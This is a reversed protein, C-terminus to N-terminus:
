NFQEVNAPPMHEGSQAWQRRRLGMVEVPRELVQSDNFEEAGLVVPITKLLIKFDLWLSWNDIYAMDLEMWQEFPLASRGSVQWLCTIGPRVSFRRRHWDQEFGEYDRQPLPRPGVLSMHGKLVNILQPLEDISTKRLIHGIRTVRPDKKIKFVPGSVENLHQLEELKKEADVVMTRFKYLKFRRKNYGVREQVFFVPGPSTIKILAAVSLLLPSLLLLLTASVARDFGSKLLQPWAEIPTSYLTLVPKDDFVEITGRAMSRDFIQSVFRITVGQEECARVIHASQQYSTSFPLAVVVEDVVNDSLYENLNDFNAVVTHGSKEFAELGDWPEDVFGVVRYGLEPRSELKKAFRAARPNTGAILVYRLNRGRLRMRELFSRIALRGGVAGLLVSLYFVVVFLLRDFSVSTPLFADKILVGANFAVLSGLSAAKFAESAEQWRSKLRRARQYLGFSRLILHWVIVLWIASNVQLAWSDMFAAGLVEIDLGSASALTALVIAIIFIVVDFLKFLEFILARRPHIM